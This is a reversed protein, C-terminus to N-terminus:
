AGSTTTGGSTDTSGNAGPGRGGGTGGTGGGAFEGAVATAAQTAGDTTGDSSLGADDPTGLTGGTEVVYTAGTEIEPSSYVVNQTDKTVEYSVLTTGDEALVHVVTGTAASQDLNAAVWGQSSDTDPAVAMGSSGAALLTGGSITFTGNVDLAGNGANTPGQVVTTGGTIELSGNSDLGDGGADVLLTGGSITLSYDGAAEGGPAGGGQAGAQGGPAAGDPMEGSPMEGDPGAPPAGATGDPPTPREGDAPPTFDGPAQGDQAASDQATGTGTGTGTTDTSTGGAANVGDDSATIDVDGGALTITAGELGEVSDSVTLTGATITLDGDAHVGDDGSALTVDGGSVSVAGNSHLGDDAAAVDVTASGGVVVGVDGKIGKASADEAVETGPGGAAAITATADAVIADTEAQVGDDGSTVDVTGGLVAVYGMTEDDANTSKLGDAAATVTVSADGTVVLYDKGRVGDDGADVTVDGGAIVLGDKSVIGDTAASVVDLSGTGGITLDASSFLAADPEDTSGDGDADVAEGTAELHNTSGDALVVVAIAADEVVLASSTSSTISAGDLVLRVVGDGSSAVVLQGDTLDGTVRYTGAQTITVTSGDVTVGDGDAQASDGDLSLAVEESEDWSLDEDDAGSSHPDANAAMAEEPTLGAVATSATTASAADSTTTSTGSDASCGVLAAATLTATLVATTVTTPRRLRM